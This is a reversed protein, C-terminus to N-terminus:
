RPNPGSFGYFLGGDSSRHCLGIAKGWTYATTFALGNHFGSNFQAQFSQYNTSSGYMFQMVDRTEGFAINVPDHRNVRVAM